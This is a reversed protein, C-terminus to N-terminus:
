FKGSAPEESDAVDADEESVTQVANKAHMASIDKHMAELQKFLGEDVYPNAPEGDITPTDLQLSYWQGQNNKRAVVNISWKRAYIPIRSIMLRSALQMGIRYEAKRYSLLLPQMACPEFDPLTVVFNLMAMHHIKMGPQRPHAEERTALFESKKAVASSKDLSYELVVPESGRLKIDNITAWSPFFFLPVCLTAPPVLENVPSVILSGLGFKNILDPDSLGQLVQLRPLITYGRLSELSTDTAAAQSIYAPVQEQPIMASTKPEIKSVKAM